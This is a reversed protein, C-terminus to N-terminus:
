FKYKSEPESELVTRTLAKSLTRRPVRRGMTGDFEHVNFVFYVHDSSVGAPIRSRLNCGFYVGGDGMYLAAAVNDM